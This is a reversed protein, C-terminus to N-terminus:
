LVEGGGIVLGRAGRLFLVDRDEEREAADWGSEARARRGLAGVGGREAADGVRECPQHCFERRLAGFQIPELVRLLVPEPLPPRRAEAWRRVSVFLGEEPQLTLNTASDNPPNSAVVLRRTRSCLICRTPRRTTYPRLAPSRIFTRSRRRQQRKLYLRSSLFSPSDGTYCLMTHASGSVLAGIAAETLATVELRVAARFRPALGGRRARM